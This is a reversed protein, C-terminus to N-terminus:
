PDIALVVWGPEDSCLKLLALPHTITMWSIESLSQKYGHRAAESRLRYHKVRITLISPGSAVAM